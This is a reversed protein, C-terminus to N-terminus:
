NEVELRELRNRVDVASRNLARSIAISSRYYPTSYEGTKADQASPNLRYERVLYVVIRNDIRRERWMHLKRGGFSLFEKLTFGSAFYAFAIAIRRATAHMDYTQM